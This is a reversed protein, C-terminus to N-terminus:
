WGGALLTTTTKDGFVVLFLIQKTIANSLNM